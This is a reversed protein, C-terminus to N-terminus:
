VYFTCQFYILYLHQLHNHNHQHCRSGMSGSEKVLRRSGSEGGSMTRIKIKSFTGFINVFFLSIIEMDMNIDVEMDSVMDPVMDVVMDVQMDAVMDAVKDVEVNTVM